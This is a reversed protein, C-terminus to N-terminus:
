FRLSIGFFLGAALGDFEFDEGGEDSTVGQRLFRYGFVVGLHDTPNWEGSTQVELSAATTDGLPMWGARAGARVTFQEHLTLAWDLGAFPEALFNSSEVEGAEARTEVDLESLRLGGHLHVTSIVNFGQRGDSAGEGRERPQGRYHHVRYRVEGQVSSWDLSTTLADGAAASFDGFDIAGPAETSGEENLMFGSIRIGWRGREASVQGMARLGASDINLDSTEIEDGGAFTIRGGPSAYWALPELRFTWPTGPASGPAEDDLLGKDWDASAPAWVGCLAVFRLFGHRM